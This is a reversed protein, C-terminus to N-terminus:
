LDGFANRFFRHTKLFNGGLNMLQAHLLSPPM